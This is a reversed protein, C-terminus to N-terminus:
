GIRDALAEKVEDGARLIGRVKLSSITKRALEPTVDRSLHVAGVVHIDVKENKKEHQELNKKSYSLIGVVFMRRAVTKEVIERHLDIEKRIATRIFDTRNSYFGEETLLDIRGLDVASLNITIKETDAM